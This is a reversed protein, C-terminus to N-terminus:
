IPNDTKKSNLYLLEKYMRSVLGKDSIHNAFIKEWETPQKKVKRQLISTKLTSSDPENKYTIGTSGFYESCNSGLVAAVNEQGTQLVM